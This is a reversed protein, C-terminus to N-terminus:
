LKLDCTIGISDLSSLRNKGDKDILYVTSNTMGINEWKEGVARRYVKYSDNEKLGKVGEWEIKTKNGDSISKLLKPSPHRYVVDRYEIAYLYYKKENEVSKINNSSSITRICM